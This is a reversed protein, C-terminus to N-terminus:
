PAGTLHAALADFLESGLWVVALVGVAILYTVGDALPFARRVWDRASRRNLEVVAREDVRARNM